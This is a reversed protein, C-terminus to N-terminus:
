MARRLASPESSVDNPLPRAPAELVTSATVSWASSLIRRPPLKVVTFPTVRELMARRSLLVVEGDVGTVTVAVDPAAEVDAVNVSVGAM